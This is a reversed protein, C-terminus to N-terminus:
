DAKTFKGFSKHEHTIHDYVWVQIVNGVDDMKFFTFTLDRQLTEAIAYQTWQLKDQEVVINTIPQWATGEANWLFYYSQSYIYDMFTLDASCEYQTFQIMRPTDSEFPYIVSFYTGIIWDPNETQNIVVPEPDEPEVPDVPTVPETPTIPNEIIPDPTLAPDLGETDCSMIFVSLLVLTIIRKM